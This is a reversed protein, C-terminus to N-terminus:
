NILTRLLYVIKRREEDEYSGKSIYIPYFEKDEYGFVNINIRNKCELKAYGKVSVAFEIGEYDFKTIEIERERESKNIRQPEKKQPNLFRAHCWRFCDNNDNKINVLGRSSNQLAVPLPIYSSGKTPEYM